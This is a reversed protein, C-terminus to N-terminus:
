DPDLHPGILIWRRAAEQESLLILCKASSKKQTHTDTVAIRVEEALQLMRRTSELSQPAFFFSPFSSDCTLLVLAFSNRVQFCLIPSFPRSM